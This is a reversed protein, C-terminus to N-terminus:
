SSEQNTMTVDLRVLPVGWTSEEHREAVETDLYTVDGEYAPGRYSANLYRIFGENGAWYSVYDTLWAGM